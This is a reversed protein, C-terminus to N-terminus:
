NKSKKEDLREKRLRRYTDIRDVDMPSIEMHGLRDMELKIENLLDEMDFGYVYGTRWSFAYLTGLSANYETEPGFEVEGSKLLEGMLNIM